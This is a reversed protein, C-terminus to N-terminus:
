GLFVRNATVNRACLLSLASASASTRVFLHGFGPAAARRFRCSSPREEPFNLQAAALIEARGDRLQTGFALARSPNTRRRFGPFCGLTTEKTLPQRNRNLELWLNLH